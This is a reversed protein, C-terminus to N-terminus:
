LATVKFIGWGHGVPPDIRDATCDVKRGILHDVKGVDRVVTKGDLRENFQQATEDHTANIDGVILYPGEPHSNGYEITRDRSEMWAKKNKGGTNSGGGDPGGPPFHVAVIKWNLDGPLDEDVLLLKVYVRPQRKNGNFWWPEKMKMPSRSDIQWDDRILLAIGPAEAGESKGYQKLVYGNNNAVKLLHDHCHYAECFVCLVPDRDKIINGVPPEKEGDLNANFITLKASM